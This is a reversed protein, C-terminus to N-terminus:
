MEKSNVFIIILEKEGQFSLNEKSSFHYIKMPQLITDEGDINISMDNSVITYCSYEDTSVKFHNDGENGQIKCIYHEGVSIINSKCNDIEIMKNHFNGIFINNKIIYKFDLAYFDNIACASHEIDSQLIYYEKPNLQVKNNEYMFNFKGRFCYGFQEHQHSHSVLDTGENILSVIIEFDKETYKCQDFGDKVKTKIGVKNLM